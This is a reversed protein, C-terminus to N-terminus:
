RRMKRRLLALGFVGAGLLLVTSPEPVPNDPTVPDPTPVPPPVPGYGGIYAVTRNTAKGVFYSSPDLANLYPTLMAINEIVSETSNVDKVFVDFDVTLSEGPALLEAHRYELVDDSFFSDSATAGNVQFTGAIYEVLADLTDHVMMFVAQEFENTATVTYHISDGANVNLEATDAIRDVAEQEKLVDIQALTTVANDQGGTGTEPTASAWNEIVTGDALGGKVQTWLSIAREDDGLGPNGDDALLRDIVFRVQGGSGDTNAHIVGCDADLCSLGDPLDGALGQYIVEQPVDDVVRINEAASGSANHVRLNWRIFGARTTDVEFTKEIEVVVDGSVLTQVNVTEVPTIETGGGFAAAYGVLARNYLRKGDLALDDPIKVDLGALIQDGPEFDQTSDSSRRLRLCWANAPLLATTETVYGPRSTAQLAMGTWTEQLPNSFCGSDLSYEVLVDEAREKLYVRQYEPTFESHNVGTRPLQDVLYWGNNVANGYNTVTLNYTLGGGIQRAAPGSKEGDLGTVELIEVAQTTEFYNSTNWYGTLEANDPGRQSLDTKRVEALFTLRNNEPIKAIPANLRFRYGSDGWWGSPPQCADPVDWWAMCAPDNFDAAELCADPQPPHFVIDEVRCSQGPVNQGPEPVRLGESVVQGTVGQLDIFKRIDYLNVLWLGKVYDSASYYNNPNVIIHAMQGAMVQEEEIWTNVRARSRPPLIVVVDYYNRSSWRSTSVANDAGRQSLDSTRIEATVSIKESSTEASVPASLRFHYNRNNWWGAPPQCADPVDWWAMCAPDKADSANDCAAADPAHFEIANLDCGQGPVNQGPEPINGSIVEGSLNSLNLENRAEFLNVVWRGKVYQSAEKANRPYVLIHATEGLAVRENEAKAEVKPWSALEKYQTYGGYSGCAHVAGSADTVTEYSYTAGPLIEIETGEALEACGDSGDCMRLLLEPNLESRPEDNAKVALLRCGAPVVADPNHEAPQASFPSGNWTLTVPKWGAHPPNAGHAFAADSPVPATGSCDKYLATLGGTKRVGHLAVGQPIDMLAYTYDLTVNHSWYGSPAYVAFYEGARISDRTMRYLDKYEGADAGNMVRYVLDGRATRCAKAEPEPAPPPPTPQPTPTPDPAIYIEHEHTDSGLDREGQTYVAKTGFETGSVCSTSATYDINIRTDQDFEVRNLKVVIPNEATMVTGVAPKSVIQYGYESSVTVNQFLACDGFGTVTATVAEIDSPYTQYAGSRTSFHDQIEMGPDVRWSRSSGSWIRFHDNSQAVAVSSVGDAQMPYDSSEGYELYARATVAKGNIYGKPVRVEVLVNKAFGDSLDQLNWVVEGSTAGQQPTSPIELNPGKHAEFFEIVRATKVGSGYDVEADEALSDDVSATTSGNMDDLSFHLVPNRTMAGSSFLNISFKLTDGVNVVDTEPTVELRTVGEAQGYINWGNLRAGAQNVKWVLRLSSASIGSIDIRNIGTSLNSKSQLVSGQCSQIELTNAGPSAVDVEVFQWGTFVGNEPQPLSICRSVAQGSATSTLGGNGLEFNQTESLNLGTNDRFGDEYSYADNFVQAQSVPPLVVLMGAALAFCVVASWVCRGRQAQEWQMM